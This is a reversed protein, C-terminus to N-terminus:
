APCQDMVERVKRLLAAPAYPKQIFGALGRGALQNTAERENYGSTLLVRVDGKIQRMRRFTEDGDMRPMTVDLLVLAIDSAHRQFVECGEEGDAATLVDYGARELVRQAITLVMAEDDVVLITRDNAPLQQDTPLLEEIPELLPKASAPFLVRFVTGEGPESEVEIAGRHGRVIGLTAALGLGRGAFKTSFFPDFIRERTEADMGDGTDRVELFVYTGAALQEALYTGALYDEDCEMVGTRISITGSRDGLAESANTILNMVVQRIQTADAEFTPLQTSFNRELLAKKSISVELLQTMDVVLQSVDVPQVVFKGKGSYALMQRCLDAARRSTSEVDRLRPRIPSDPDLELLALGTNGLIGMLLNNFDHAIGGALVGLSELKQAQQIQAELKEKEAQAQKQDTVDASIACVAYINDADDHLPFRVSLFTRPGDGTPFIEECRDIEGTELVRSDNARLEAVQSPAFFKSDTSDQVQHRQQGVLMEFQRNVLLYRGESDKMYVMMPANDLIGQLREESERLKATRRAVTNRLSWSWGFALLVMALLPLAIWLLWTILIETPVGKDQVGFWTTYLEPYRQTTTVLTLGDDLRELLENEGRRVAFSLSRSYSQIPPGAIRLNTLKLDRVLQLGTLHPVLACDAEGAALRRLTESISSEGLIEGTLERQVFDQVAGPQWVLTPRNRLHAETVVGTIEKRLFIGDSAESHSLTFEFKTELEESASLNPIIDVDGAELAAIIEDYTGARLEIELSMVEAVARTLDVSFGALQGDADVFSYPPFERDIGVVFRPRAELENVSVKTSPNNGCASLMMSLMLMLTRGPWLRMAEAASMGAVSTGTASTGTASRSERLSRAQGLKINAALKWVAVKLTIPHPM